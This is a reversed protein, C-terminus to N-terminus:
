TGFAADCEVVTEDFLAQLRALSEPTARTADEQLWRAMDALAMAGVQASSGKLGHALSAVTRNDFAARATELGKFVAPFGRKWSALLRQRFAADVSALATRNLVLPAVVNPASDAPAAAAATDAAPVVALCWKQVVRAFAMDSFPKTLVEVMGAARVDMNTLTDTDSTMCIIPTKHNLVGAKIRQCAEIGDLRPM